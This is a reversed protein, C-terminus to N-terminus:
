AGGLHIINGTFTIGAPSILFEVTETVENLTIKRKIAQNSIVNDIKEPPVKAILDTDVPGPALCVVKINHSSNEKAFVRTFTEVGSKSAAYVAEGQLAIKSAITSFNLITGGGQRIMLPTFVQSSYITGCLNTQIIKEVVQGPTLLALNMNAIGAANILVNPYKKENLLKSAIEKLSTSSSVDCQFHRYPLGKNSPNRSIGIVEEGEQLFYEALHAGIGRSAGTILIM